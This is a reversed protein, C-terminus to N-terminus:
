RPPQKLSHRSRQAELLENLVALEEDEPLMTSELQAIRQSAEVNWQRERYRSEIARYRELPDGLSKGERLAVREQLTVVVNKLAENDIALYISDVDLARGALELDQYASFLMQATITEFWSADIAGVALGAVAPSEILTEFLERDMGSISPLKAPSDHPDRPGLASPGTTVSTSPGDVSASEDLLHNPDLAINPRNGTSSSVLVRRNRELADAKRRMGDLRNTLRETTIGFTRSLRVIIQDTKLEDHRPVRSILRLMEDIAKTVRHTDRTVDIGETLGVFKHDLADPAAQILQEFSERGYKTLYEAPDLDEPLTLIRLDVNARVFLELVEDARQKGAEDGDLVLVVRQCFRQLTKVHEEGLATGLVAVVPEIGAQRTAIVDTYGEMVLVHGCRRISERALNLGYLQHSKRFVATEPGNIYKAAPSADSGSRAAIAPIIRGGLSIVRDQLDQIPFMLRGRFRDYAGQGDSKQVALGAAVAVETQISERRLVNLAFNWSDPAFGIQFRKREDFNIGRQDLYERAIKADSSTGENLERVYERAVIQLASFVANKDGATGPKASTKSGRSYAQIDIGAKEALQRLATPFDIGDRQMVFSFIDGGIDCVWCKWTQRSPNVTMSPRRDNHWPCRAVLNRGQPRLELQSGIVDVIDVASRVQEKLDFDL